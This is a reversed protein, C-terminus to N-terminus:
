KFGTNTRFEDNCGSAVKIVIGDPLKYENKIKTDVYVMNYSEEIAKICHIQEEEMYAALQDFICTSLIEPFFRKSERVKRKGETHEPLEIKKLVQTNLTYLDKIRIMEMDLVPLLETSIIDFDDMFKDFRIAIGKSIRTTESICTRLQSLNIIADQIDKLLEKQQGINVCRVEYEDNTYQYKYSQYYTTGYVYLSLMKVNSKDALSIEKIKFREKMREILNMISNGTISPQYDAVYLTSLILRQLNGDIAFTRFNIYFQVDGNFEKYDFNIEELGKTFLGKLECSINTDTLYLFPNLMDPICYFLAFTNQYIESKIVIRVIYNMHQKIKLHEVMNVPLELGSENPDNPIYVFSKYPWSTESNSDDFDYCINCENHTGSLYFFQAHMSKALVNCKDLEDVDKKSICDTFRINKVEEWDAKVYKLAPNIACLLILILPCLITQTIHSLGIHDMM